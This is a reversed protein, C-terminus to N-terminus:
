AAAAHGEPFQQLTRRLDDLRVPKALYDDMGAALCKERDGVLADATLAIIKVKSGNARIRRTAELGDLNPMHIDMLVLNYAQQAVADVAQLGDAVLRAKRGCHELMRAIVKQNVPDDEVVLVDATAASAPPPANTQM